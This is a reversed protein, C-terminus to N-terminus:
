KWAICLGASAPTTSSCFASGVSTRAAVAAATTPTLRRFSASHRCRRARISQAANGLCPMV